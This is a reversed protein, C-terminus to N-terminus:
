LPLCLAKDHHVTQPIPYPPKLLGYSQKQETDATVISASSEGAGTCFSLASHWDHISLANVPVEDCQSLEPQRSHLEDLDFHPPQEGPRVEEGVSLMKLEVPGM